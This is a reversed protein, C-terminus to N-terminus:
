ASSTSARVTSIWTEQGILFGIWHGGIEDGIYLNVVRIDVGFVPALNKREHLLVAAAEDDAATRM